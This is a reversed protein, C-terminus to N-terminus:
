GRRPSCGQGAGAARVAAGGVAHVPGREGREKAGGSAQRPVDGLPSVLDVAVVREEAGREALHPHAAAGVAADPDAGV